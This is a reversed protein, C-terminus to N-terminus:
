IKSRQKQKFISTQVCLSIGATVPYTLLRTLAVSIKLHAGILQMLLGIGQCLIALILYPIVTRRPSREARFVLFHSGFFTQIVAISYALLSSLYRDLGIWTFSIILSFDVLYGLSGNLSYRVIRRLSSM